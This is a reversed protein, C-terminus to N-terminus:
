PYYCAGAGVFADGLFHVVAEPARNNPPFLVFAGEIERWDSRQGPQQSNFTRQIAVELTEFIPNPTGGPLSRSQPVLDQPPAGAVAQGSPQYRIPEARAIVRSVHPYRAGRHLIVFM